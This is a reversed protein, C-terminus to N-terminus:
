FVFRFILTIIFLIIFIWLLLKGIRATFGGLGRAGVAYFVIGLLLLGIGIWLLDIAM